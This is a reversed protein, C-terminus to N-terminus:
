GATGGIGAPGKWGADYWDNVVAGNTSVFVVETGAPTEAVPSGARAVGGIGAPGHWGGGAYWDNVVDGNTAVFVVDGKQSMSLPSGARAVGGIPEPGRWGASTAWDNVVEGNASIFVVDNGANNEVIPSDSRAVGGIGAPGHWGTSNHWDNVVQGSTNVFVVDGGASMSLASRRAGGALAALGAASGNFLDQDGPLTGSSAYQWFAPSSWSGMTGAASCYCAIWLPDTASFAGSNGTCTNWWDATSYIVPYTGTRNHYEAVFSSVWSVMGSQSLGYCESGYPNYEIDLAGPLTKGGPSWNGGHDVFYDAQASGSSDNPVAFHYAGRVLGAQASGNYQQAYYPNIYSTSETAKVYAFQAGDSKVTSWNVNGQYGSVDLGLPQGTANPSLRVAPRAAARVASAPAKGESILRQLGSGMHDRGPHTVKEPRPGASSASAAVAASSFSCASLVVATFL